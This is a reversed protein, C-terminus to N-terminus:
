SGKRSRLNNQFLVFLCALLFGVISISIVIISRLPKSKVEPVMARSVVVFMYEPNAEALMKERNEKLILEYFVQKLNNNKIKDLQAELYSLNKNSQNIQRLRM